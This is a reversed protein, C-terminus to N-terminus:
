TEVHVIHYKLLWPKKQRQLMRAKECCCDAGSSYPHRHLVHRVEDRMYVRLPGTLHQTAWVNVLRFQCPTVVVHGQVVLHRVVVVYPIRCFAPM